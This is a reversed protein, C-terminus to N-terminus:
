DDYLWGQGDCFICLSREVHGDSYRTEHIGTGLCFPCRDPRRNRRREEAERRRQEAERRQQEAERRKLEREQEKKQEMLFAVADECGLKASEELLEQGKQVNKAVGVGNFYCYSLCYIGQPNDQTASRQYNEFAKEEDRMTGVGHEYCYGLLMCSHADGDAAAKQAYAFAKKNDKEVGKGAMYAQALPGAASLKGREYAETYADVSEKWKSSDTMYLEGLRYLADANHRKAARQYCTLAEETNGDTEATQGKEYYSRGVARPVTMTCVGVLVGAAVIAAIMFQKKM